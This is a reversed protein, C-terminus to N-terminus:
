KEEEDGPKKGALGGTLESLGRKLKNWMGSLKGTSALGYIM